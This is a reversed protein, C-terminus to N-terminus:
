RSVEVYEFVGKKLRGRELAKKARVTELEKLSYGRAICIAQLVELIYAM